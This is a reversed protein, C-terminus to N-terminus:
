FYWNTFAIKLPLVEKLELSTQSNLLSQNLNNTHTCSHLNSSKNQMHSPSYQYFYYINLSKSDCSALILLVLISKMSFLFVLRFKFLISFLMYVFSRKLVVKLIFCMYRCLFLSYNIILALLDLVDVFDVFIRM